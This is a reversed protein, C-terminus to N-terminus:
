VASVIVSSLFHSNGSAKLILNPNELTDNRFHHGLASATLRDLDSGVFPVDPKAGRISPILFLLQFLDVVQLICEPYSRHEVHKVPMAVRDREGVHRLEYINDRWHHRVLSTEYQLRSVIRQLEIGFM